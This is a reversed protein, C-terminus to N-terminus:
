VSEPVKKLISSVQLLDWLLTQGPDCVADLKYNAMIRAEERRQRTTLRSPVNLRQHYLSAM